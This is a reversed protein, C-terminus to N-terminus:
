RRQPASPPLSPTRPASLSSPPAPPTSSARPIQPSAPPRPPTAVGGRAIGSAAQVRRVTELQRQIRETGLKIAFQRVKQFLPLLDEKSMDELRVDNYIYSVGGKEDKEARIGPISGLIEDHTGIDDRIDAIMEAKTYEKKIPKPLAEKPKVPVKKASPLVAKQAEKAKNRNRFSAYSKKMKDIISMKVEKPQNTDACIGIGVFSIIVVACVLLMFLKRM